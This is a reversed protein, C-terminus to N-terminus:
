IFYPHFDIVSRKWSEKKYVTLLLFHEKLFVFKLHFQM